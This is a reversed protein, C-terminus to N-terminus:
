AQGYRTPSPQKMEYDANMDHLAKLVDNLLEGNEGPMNEEETVHIELADYEWRRLIKIKENRTLDNDNLVDDPRKYVSAPDILAKKNTKM